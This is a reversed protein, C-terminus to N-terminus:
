RWFMKEQALRSFLAEDDPVAHDREPHWMIAVVPHDEHYFAEVNGETDTAAVVLGTGLGQPTVGLNHYSNVQVTDGYLPRFSNQTRVEHRVAVHGEVAELVGGFSRNIFQLGRCIGLVPYNSKLAYELLAAETEDREANTGPDEGGTLVLLDANLHSFYDPADKLGNPILFPIMNWAACRTQWDRSISDRPENYGEAQTVRMTLAIRLM